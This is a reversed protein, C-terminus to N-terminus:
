VFDVPLLCFHLATNVASVQSLLQPHASDNLVRQAGGAVSLPEDALKLGM